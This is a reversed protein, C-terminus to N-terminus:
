YSRIQRAISKAVDFDQRTPYKIPRDNFFLTLGMMYTQFRMGWNADLGQDLKFYGFM